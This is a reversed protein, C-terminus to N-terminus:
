PDETFCGGCSANDTCDALPGALTFQLQFLPNNANLENDLSNRRPNDATFGSPCMLTGSTGNAMYAPIGGVGPHHLAVVHGLEHALHTVNCAAGSSCVPRSNDDSSIVKASALGSSFTAGGGWTGPNDFRDVFFVEICDSDSVEARLAADEGAAIDLTFYQSSWITKWPRWDFIVDAKRWQLNAGPQGFPLGDGTYDVSFIPFPWGSEIKIRGMRVPQVCLKRVAEFQVWTFGLEVPVIAPQAVVYAPVRVDKLALPEAAFAVYVSGVSGVIGQGGPEAGRGPELDRESILLALVITAKQTPAAYVADRGDSIGTMQQQLDGLQSLEVVGEWVGYLLAWDPIVQRFLQVKQVAPLAASLVGDDGFRNSPLGTFPEQPVGTYAVNLAGVRMVNAKLEEETAILHLNLRGQLSLAQNNVTVQSRIPSNVIAQFPSVRLDEASVGGAAVVVIGVACLWHKM